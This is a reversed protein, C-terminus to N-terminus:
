CGVLATGTGCQGLVPTPKYRYWVLTVVVGHRYRVLVPIPGGAGKYPRGPIPTSGVGCQYWVPGVQRSLPVVSTGPCSPPLM